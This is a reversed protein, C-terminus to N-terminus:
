EDNPNLIALVQHDEWKGNIRVNKRAIGEKHFGAKELVRISGVNHPMVGAEIRHLGLEGFAYDVVLRAAETMYGQGNHRQDLDYGILASQLASRLVQFLSIAGILRNDHNLFIGFSYAQDNLRAEIQKQIRELQADLTYYDEDRTLTFPEFFERNDLQLRLLEAADDATLPKLHIRDGRIM